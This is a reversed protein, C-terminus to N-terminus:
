TVLSVVRSHSRYTNNDHICKPGSDDEERAEVFLSLIFSIFFLTVRHCLFEVLLCILNCEGNGYPINPMIPMTLNDQTYILTVHM